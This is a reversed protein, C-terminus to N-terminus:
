HLSGERAHMLARIEAVWGALEVATASVPDTALALEAQRALETGRHLGFTGLSGALKHADGHAAEREETTLTGASLAAVAADLVSVRREIEPLFKRWLRAMADSISAKVPTAVTPPTSSM